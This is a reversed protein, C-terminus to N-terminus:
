KWYLINSYQCNSRGTIISSRLQTDLITAPINPPSNLKATQRIIITLNRWYKTMVHTHAPDQLSARARACASMVSYYRQRQDALFLLCAASIKRPVHGVISSRKTVVRVATGRRLECGLTKTSMTRVEFM